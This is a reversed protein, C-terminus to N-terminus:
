AALRDPLLATLLGDLCSHLWLCGPLLAVFSDLCCPLWLCVGPPATALPPFPTASRTARARVAAPPANPPGPPRQRAPAPQPHQRVTGTDAPTPRERSALRALRALAPSSPRLHGSVALSERAARAPSSREGALALRAALECGCIRSAQVQRAASRVAGGPGGVGGSGPSGSLRHARWGSGGRGSVGQGPSRVEHGEGRTSVLEAAGRM